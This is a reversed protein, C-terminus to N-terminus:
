QTGPKKQMLHYVVSERNMGLERNMIFSVQSNVVFTGIILTTSLTFQFVVLVKRFLTKNGRSQKFSKSATVPAFSSLFLAPYLGSTFGVMLVIALLGIALKTHSLDLSLHNVTLQNFIPLAFEVLLLAVALAM